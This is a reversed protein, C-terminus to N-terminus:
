HKLQHLGAYLGIRYHMLSLQLVHESECKHVDTMDATDHKSVQQMALCQQVALTRCLM